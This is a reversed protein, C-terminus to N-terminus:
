FAILSLPNPCDNSPPRCRKGSLPCERYRVAPELSPFSAPRQDNTKPRQDIDMPRDSGPETESITVRLSQRQSSHLVLRNLGVVLLWRGVVLSWEFGFRPRVCGILMGFSFGSLACCSSVSITHGCQLSVNM